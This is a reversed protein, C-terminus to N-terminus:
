PYTAQFVVGEGILPLIARRRVDSPADGSVPDPAWLNSSLILVSTERDPSFADVAGIAM